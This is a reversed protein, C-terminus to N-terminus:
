GAAEATAATPEPVPTFDLYYAKGVEFQAYASPNNVYLEVSGSPTAESFRQDEPITEDYECNLRVTRAGGDHPTIEQCRLKARVAM